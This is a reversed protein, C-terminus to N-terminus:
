EGHITSQLTLKKGLLTVVCKVSHQRASLPLSARLIVPQGPAGTFSGQMEVSDRGSPASFVATYVPPTKTTNGVPTTKLSILARGEYSFSDLSFRYGGMIGSAPTRILPLFVFWVLAIVALDILIITLSRNRKFIGGPLKGALRQQIDTPLGSIREERNYHYVYGGPDRSEESENAKM